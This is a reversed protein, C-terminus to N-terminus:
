RKEVNDPVFPRRETEHIIVWDATFPAGRSMLEHVKETNGTKAAQLLAKGLDTIVTQPKQIGLAGNM